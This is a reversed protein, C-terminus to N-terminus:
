LFEMKETEILVANDTVIIGTVAVSEGDPGSSDGYNAMWVPTLKGMQYEGGKYGIMTKGVMDNLKALFEEVTPPEGRSNYELSLEDYSGRWSILDYPYYPYSKFTVPLAKNVGKLLLILEVLVLQSSKELQLKRTAIMENRIAKMFDSIM